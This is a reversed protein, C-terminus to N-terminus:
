MVIYHMSVQEQVDPSVTIGTQMIVLPSKRENHVIVGLGTITGVKNGFRTYFTTTSLYNNSLFDLVTLQTIKDVLQCDNWSSARKSRRNLINFGKGRYQIYLLKWLNKCYFKKFDGNIESCLSINYKCSILM